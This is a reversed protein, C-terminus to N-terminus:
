SSIPNEYINSNLHAREYAAFHIRFLSFNVYDVTCPAITTNNFLITVSRKCLSFFFICNRVLGSAFDWAFDFERIWYCVKRFYFIFVIDTPPFFIFIFFFTIRVVLYINYTHRVFRIRSIAIIANQQLIMDFIFPKRWNYIITGPRLLVAYM